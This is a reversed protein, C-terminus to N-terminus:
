ALARAAFAAAAVLTALIALAQADRIRTATGSAWRDHSGAAIQGRTVIPLGRYVDHGALCAGDVLVTGAPRRLSRAMLFGALAFMVGMAPFVLSFAAGAFTHYAM